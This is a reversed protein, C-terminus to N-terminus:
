QTLLSIDNRPAKANAQKLALSLPLFYAINPLGVEEGCVGKKGNPDTTDSYTVSSQTIGVGEVTTANPTPDTFLPGGSDGGKLCLNAMVLGETIIGGVVRSVGVATVDGCTTQTTTGHKCVKMGVAPERLGTVPFTKDGFAKVQQLAENPMNEKELVGVVGWDAEPFLNAHRNAYKHGVGDITTRNDATIRFTNSAAPKTEDFCHANTLFGTPSGPSNNIRVAFGMTCGYLRERDVQRGIPAGGSVGASERIQGGVHNELKLAAGLDPLKVKKDSFVDVVLTNTNPNVGVSFDFDALKGLTTSFKAIRDFVENRRQLLASPIAGDAVATTNPTTPAATSPTTDVANGAAAIALATLTGAVTGIAATRHRRRTRAHM